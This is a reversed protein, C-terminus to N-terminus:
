TAQNISCRIAFLEAKTFTVKVMYHITKIISNNHVYIYTVLMAVQNKISTDLVIVAIKLEALVRLILKNLKCIYAKRSEKSKKDSSHFYFCSPYINILKDESSFKSSFPSFFSFVEDLRNNTDVISGKINM